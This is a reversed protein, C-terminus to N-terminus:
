LKSHFIISILLNCSVFLPLSIALAIDRPKASARGRIWSVHQFDRRPQLRPMWRIHTSLILTCRDRMKQLKKAQSMKQLVWGAVYYIVVLSYKGVLCEDLLLVCPMDCDTSSYAWYFFLANYLYVRFHCFMITDMGGEEIDVTEYHKQWEKIFILRKYERKKKLYHVESSSLGAATKPFEDVSYEVWRDVCM